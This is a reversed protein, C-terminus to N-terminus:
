PEYVLTVPYGAIQRANFFSIVEDDPYGVGNRSVLEKLEPLLIEGNDPQLSRLLEGGQLLGDEVYLTKVKSFPRLLERWLARDVEERWDFWPSLVEYDLTLQMVVSLLPWLQKFIQEASAVQLDLHGCRNRMRFPDTWNEGRSDDALVIQYVDRLFKLRVADFRLKKMFRSLQPLTSPTFSEIRLQELAPTSIRALLGELYTSEGLLAFLRLRPLTVHTTMPTALLQEEAGRNPDDIHCDVALIELQPMLSLRALLYDPNFYTSPPICALKLTVLRVATTLLPSGMQLTVRSLVLHRLHPAHFSEPLKLITTPTTRHSIFLRELLPFENDIAGVLKRLNPAPVSLGIRRVRDRHKLALLIDEEDDAASKGVNGMYYIIIPLPPSHALMRAVPTGHTCLLHVGVHIPSALIVNRWRRCVHALKYWWHAGKWHFKGVSFDEDNEEDWVDLGYLYFVNLLADDDLM